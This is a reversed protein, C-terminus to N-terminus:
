TVDDDNSYLVLLIKMRGVEQSEQNFTQLFSKLFNFKQEQIEIFWRSTM